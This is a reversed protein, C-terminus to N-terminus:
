FHFAPPLRLSSHGVHLGLRWENSELLWDLPQMQDLSNTSETM